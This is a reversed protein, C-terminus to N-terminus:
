KREMELETRAVLGLLATCIILSNGGYSIFPLTLGKTPLSGTTVGINILVQFGLLLGVGYCLYGGFREGQILALRGKRVIHLILAAFLTLLALAGALGLEEAVVAYIFDNHADPLYWLKQIGEGLGIGFLEGRGFAILSNVLQYGSNYADAWPDTFIILRPRVHPLALALVAVLTGGALLVLVFYRLRVGALFLMTGLVGGLIVVTGLDPQLVLLVALLCFWLIPRMLPSLTTFWFTPRWLPAKVERLAEDYTALHGALYIIFAAKALEGPQLTFSGLDIWRTAGNIKMAVGPILVVVCFAIAGVMALQHTNRWVKLPCALMAFFAGLAIALYIGHRTFYPAPMSISASAVMVLGFGLLLLWCVVLPTDIRIM